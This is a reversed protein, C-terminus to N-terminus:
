SGLKGYDDCPEDFDRGGAVKQLDDISLVNEASKLTKFLMKLEDEEADLGAATLSAKLEAEDKCEIFKKIVEPTIKSYDIKM